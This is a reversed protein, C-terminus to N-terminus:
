HAQVEDCASAGPAHEAIISGLKTRLEELRIPKQLMHIISLGRASGLRQASQLMETSKGSILVIPVRSKRDSLVTLIELGDVEPMFIDVLILDPPSTDYVRIFEQASDTDFVEYGCGEAVRASSSAPRNTTM